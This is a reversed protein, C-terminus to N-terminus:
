ANMKKLDNRVEDVSTSSEKPSADESAERNNQEEVYELFLNIVTTQDRKFNTETVTINCYGSDDGMIIASIVPVMRVFWQFITIISFDLIINIVVLCGFAVMIARYVMQKKKDSRERERGSPGILKNRDAEGNENLILGPVLRIPKARNCVILTKRTELPLDLKMISKESKRQYKEKYESYEMDIDALLSERYQRLEKVKYDKCFIPVLGAVKRDYINQKKVRYEKLSTQYEEDRRGRQKGKDYRNRYVLTTIIYLFITLATFNKLNGPSLTFDTFSIAAAILVLAILMIDNMIIRDPSKSVMDKELTRRTERRMESRSKVVDESANTPIKDM